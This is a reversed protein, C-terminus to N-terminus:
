RHGRKEDKERDLYEGAAFYLVILIPVIYLQVSASLIGLRKLAELGILALIFILVRKWNFRMKM